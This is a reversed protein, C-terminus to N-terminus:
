KLNKVIIDTIDKEKEYYAIAVAMADIKLLIDIKNKRCYNSIEQAAKDTISGVKQQYIESYELQKAQIKKELLRAEEVLLEHKKKDIDSLKSKVDESNDSAPLKYPKLLQNEKNILAEQEAKIEAVFKRNIDDTQKKAETYGPINELLKAENIFATKQALFLQYFFCFVLVFLHKVNKMMLNPNYTNIIAKM